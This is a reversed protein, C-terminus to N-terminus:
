LEAERLQLRAEPRKPDGWLEQTIDDLVQDPPTDLIEYSQLAEIRKAENEPFIISM